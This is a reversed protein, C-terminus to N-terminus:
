YAGLREQEKVYTRAVSSLTEHRVVSRPEKAEKDRQSLDSLVRGVGSVSPNRLLRPVTGPCVLVQVHFVGDRPLLLGVDLGLDSGHVEVVTVIFLGVMSSIRAGFGSTRGRM